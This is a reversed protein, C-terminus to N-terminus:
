GGVGWKKRESLPIRMLSLRSERNRRASFLLAAVLVAGSLGCKEPIVFNYLVLTVSDVLPQLRIEPNQL